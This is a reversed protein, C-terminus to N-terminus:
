QRTWRKAKSEFRPLEAVRRVPIRLSFSSTLAHELREIASDDTTEVDLAIEALTDRFTVTM